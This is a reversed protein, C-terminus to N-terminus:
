AAMKKFVGEIETTFQNIQFQTVRNIIRQIREPTIVSDVLDTGGQMFYDTGMRSIKRAILFALSSIKITDDIPQIGKDYIWKEIAKIPPFKGPERGTVLQQTYPLGRIVGKLRKTDAELSNIWDGSAEMGLERHRAILDEKIAEMEEALIESSTM